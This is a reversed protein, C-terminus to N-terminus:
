SKWKVNCGLSPKQVGQVERGELVDDLAQRLDVGTVPIDNGPRSGDLQGRYALRMDSDFLYIDPTCAADYARAVEQTEDYLYPFPYGQEEAVKKMLHPADDPYNEVDNSSIAIFGIGRHQYDRAVRVLEKNVHIVFPCHNCIFYIVTGKEGKLEQLSMTKGSVTDLLEFGPAPTKLPLMNSPTRAM